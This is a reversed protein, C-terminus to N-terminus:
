EGYVPDTYSLVLWDAVGVLLSEEEENLSPMCCRFTRRHVVNIFVRCLKV